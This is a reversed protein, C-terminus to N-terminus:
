IKIKDDKAKPGKLASWALIILKGLLWIAFIVLLVSLTIRLVIGLVLLLPFLLVSLLAGVGTILMALILFALGVLFAKM